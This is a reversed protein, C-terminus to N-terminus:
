RPMLLEDTFIPKLRLPLEDMIFASNLSSYRYEGAAGVLGARVPNEQIYAAYRALEAADRVRRDVFSKQWIEYKAGFRRGAEHSFGGKILQIARELTLGEAVTLILHFHNPMVVFSHVRFKQADRYRFPNRLVIGGNCRIAPHEDQLLHQLHRLLNYQENYRSTTHGCIVEAASAPHKLIKALAGCL